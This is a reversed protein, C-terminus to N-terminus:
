SFRSLFRRNNAVRRYMWETIAAFTASKQYWKYLGKYEPHEALARLVAAAGSSISGDIDVLFVAKEYESTPIEPFRSHVSQWPHYDVREGTIRQWRLVWRRCFGCEGDWLMVPNGVPPQKVRTRSEPM